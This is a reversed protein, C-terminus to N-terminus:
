RLTFTSVIHAITQMALALPVVAEDLTPPAEEPGREFLKTARKLHKGDWIHKTAEVDGCLEAFNTFLPQPSPHQLWPLVQDERLLRVDDGIAFLRVNFRLSQVTKLRPASKTRLAKGELNVADATAPPPSHSGAPANSELRAAGDETATGSKEIGNEVGNEVGSQVGNEVVQDRQDERAGGGESQAEAGEENEDVVVAESKVERGEVIGPWYRLTQGALSGKVGVLPAPLEAYVLEGRRPLSCHQLDEDRSRNVFAGRYTPIGKTRRGGDSDSSEADSDEGESGKLTGNAIAEALLRKKKKKRARAEPDLERGKGKLKDKPRASAPDDMLKM